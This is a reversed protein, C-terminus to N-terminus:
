AVLRSFTFISSLSTLLTTALLLGARMRALEFTMHRGDALFVFWTLVLYKDSAIALADLLFRFTSSGLACLTISRLAQLAILLTCTQLPIPLESKRQINVWLVTLVIV